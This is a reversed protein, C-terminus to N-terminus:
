HKITSNSVVEMRTKLLTLPAEFFMAIMKGSFASISYKYYKNINPIAELEKNLYSIISTYITFGYGQRVVALTGGRMYQMWGNKIIKSHLDSLYMSPSNIMNTKLVEFPQTLLSAIAGAYVSKYSSPLIRNETRLNHSMQFLTSNNNYRLNSKCM